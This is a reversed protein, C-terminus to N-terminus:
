DGAPPAAGPVVLVSCQAGALLRLMTNRLLARETSSQGHMSGVILDAGGSRACALLGHWPVADNVIRREVACDAPPALAREVRQMQRHVAARVGAGRDTVHVLEIARPAPFLVRAVRAAHVVARDMGVAVLLREPPPHFAPTVALVPITSHLAVVAACRGPMPRNGPATPPLPVVVVDAEGHQAARVLAVPAHGIECNLPWRAADGSAAALARRVRALQGELAPRDAPEVHLTSGGPAHLSSAGPYAIPPEFAAVVTVAAGHLAHLAAAARVAAEPEIDDYSAVLIRRFGFRPALRGPARRGAPSAVGSESPEPADSPVQDHPM